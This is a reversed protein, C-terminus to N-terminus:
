FGSTVGFGRKLSKNKHWTGTAIPGGSVGSGALYPRLLNLVVQPYRRGSGLLSGSSSSRFNEIEVSGAKLRRAEAQAFGASAGIDEGANVLAALECYADLVPQPTETDEVGTVGTRPWALDQAEDTKAGKWPLSNLYRTATVAARKKADADDTARWTTAAESSTGNLYADIYAVDEYVVFNDSGITITESM